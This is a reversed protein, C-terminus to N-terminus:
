MKVFKRYLKINKESSFLTLFYVGKPFDSTPITSVVQNKTWVMRGTADYISIKADSAINNSIDINLIDSVPNPLINFTTNEVNNEINTFILNQSMAIGECGNQTVVLHYVGNQAITYTNSNAGNILQGNLYWKYTDAPFVATLVNGNVTFAAPPIPNVTVNITDRSM